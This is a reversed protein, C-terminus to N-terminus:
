ENSATQTMGESSVAGVAAADACSQLKAFAANALSYDVACGLATLIPLLTIAFIVAVNGGRDIGFAALTHRLCTLTTM